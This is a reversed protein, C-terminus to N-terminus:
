SVLVPPRTRLRIKEVVQAAKKDFRAVILNSCGFSCHETHEQPRSYAIFVNKHRIAFYFLAVATLKTGLTSAVVNYKRGVSKYIAELSQLASTINTFSITTKEVNPRTLILANEHEAINRWREHEQFPEGVMAVTKHPDFTEWVAHARLGEFGLILLLFKQKKPDYDEGFLPLTRVDKVGNSIPLEYDLPEVYFLLGTARLRVLERLLLLLTPKPFSTIDILVQYKSVDVHKRRLSERLRQIVQIPQQISTSLVEFEASMGALSDDILAKNQKWNFGQGLFTSPFGVTFAHAFQLRDRLVPLVAIARQEFGYGCFYILPKELTIHRFVDKM